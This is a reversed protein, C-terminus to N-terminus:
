NTVEIAQYSAVDVKPINASYTSNIADIFDNALIAYGRTSPHVGDLSFAGGSIFDANFGIGSVTIGTTSLEQMRANADFFALGRSSAESKIFSNFADTASIIKSIESNTLCYKGPLPFKTGMKHCKLSDTPTALTMLEGPKLQRLKAAGAFSPNVSTYATDMLNSLDNDVIVFGSFQGATFQIKRRNAEEQTFTIWPKQAAIQVAADLLANYGGYGAIPDMLSDAQSQTLADTGNPIAYFHPISTVYPVNAVVGKQGNSTLADLAGSYAGEFTAQPTIPDGGEEGGKTAYSLVDNNGIWLMFFTHNAKAAVSLMSETSGGFRGFYPNLAGYGAIGLHVAKAGPASVNNYPGSSTIPNFFEPAQYKALPVKNADVGSPILSPGLSTVNRCDTTYTLKFEPLVFGMQTLQANPILGVGKVGANGPIIPQKFDGGGVQQLQTAIMNPLSNEQGEASLANSQFGAFLSNGVAVTTTFNATGGATFEVDDFEPECGYLFALPLIYLAKNFIKKM